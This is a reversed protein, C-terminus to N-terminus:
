KVNNFFENDITDMYEKRGTTYKTNGYDVWVGKNVKYGDCKIIDKYDIIDYAASLCYVCSSETTVEQNEDWKDIIFRINNITVACYGYNSDDYQIKRMVKRGNPLIISYSKKSYYKM